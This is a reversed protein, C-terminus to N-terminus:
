QRKMEKLERKEDQEANRQILAENQVLLWQLGNAATSVWEERRM